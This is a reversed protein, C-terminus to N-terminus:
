CNLGQARLEERRARAKEKNRRARLGSKKRRENIGHGGHQKAGGKNTMKLISLNGRCKITLKGNTLSELVM